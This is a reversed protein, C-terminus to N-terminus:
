WHMTLANRMQERSLVAAARRELEKSRTRLERSTPSIYLEPTVFAINAEIVAVQEANLAERHLQLWRSMHTRVLTAKEEASLGNFTAIRDEWSQRRFAGYDITM